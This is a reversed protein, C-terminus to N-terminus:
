GTMDLHHLLLTDTCKSRTAWRAPLPVPLRVTAHTLCGGPPRESARTRVICRVTTSDLVGEGGGASFYRCRQQQQQQKICAQFCFLILLCSQVSCIPILLRARDGWGVRWPRARAASQNVSQQTDGGGDIYRYNWGGLAEAAAREGREGGVTRRVFKCRMACTGSADCQIPVILELVSSSKDGDVDSFTDAEAKEGGLREAFGGESSSFAASVARGFIPTHYHTIAVNAQKSSRSHTNTKCAQLPYTPSHWQLTGGTGWIGADKRVGRAGGRSM